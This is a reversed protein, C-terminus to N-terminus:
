VMRSGFYLLALVVAIAVIPLWGDAHNRRRNRDRKPGASKTTAMIENALLYNSQRRM